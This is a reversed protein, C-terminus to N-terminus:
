YMHIFKYQLDHSKYFKEMGKEIPVFEPEMIKVFEHKNLQWDGSIDGM